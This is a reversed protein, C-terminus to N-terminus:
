IYMYIYTYIYIHIHTHQECAYIHLQNSIYMYQDQIKWISYRYFSKPTINKRNIM